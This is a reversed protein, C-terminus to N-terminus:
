NVCEKLDFAASSPEGLLGAMKLLEVTRHAHDGFAYKCSTIHTREFIVGGGLYILSCGDLTCDVFHKEDLRVSEGVITLGSIIEM